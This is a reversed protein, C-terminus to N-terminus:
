ILHDDSSVEHITIRAQTSTIRAQIKYRTCRLLTRAYQLTREDSAPKSKDPTHHKLSLYDEATPISWYIDSGLVRISSKYCIQSSSMGGGTTLSRTWLLHNVWHLDVGWGERSLRSSGPQHQLSHRPLLCISSRRHYWGHQEWRMPYWGYQEWRLTIGDWMDLRYGIRSQWDSIGEETQKLFNYFALFHLIKFKFAKIDLALINFM